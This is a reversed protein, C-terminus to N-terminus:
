TKGERVRPSNETARDGLRHAPRGVSDGTANGCCRQRSQRQDLAALVRFVGQEARPGVLRHMAAAALLNNASAICPCQAIM